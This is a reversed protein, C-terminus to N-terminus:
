EKVGELGDDEVLDGKLISRFQQILRLAMLFGGIPIVTYPIAMLIGMSPAKQGTNMLQLIFDTGKIAIFLAFIFFLITALLDIYKKLKEGFMDRLFTVRIHGGTKIALSAGLWVQAVHIYRALEEGWILGSGLFYRFLAQSFILALIIVMSSVLLIEELKRILNLIKM